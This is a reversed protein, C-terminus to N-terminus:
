DELGNVMRKIGDRLHVVHFNILLGLKHGSLKLYSLLQAEHVQITNPLTKLEVIVRDQVLMDIRFGVALQVGCYVLPLEIQTEVKLGRRRLEFALCTECTSELCGPGLHSHVRVAADVIHGSIENIAIGM